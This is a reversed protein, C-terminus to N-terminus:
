QTKTPVSVMRHSHAWQRLQERAKEPLAFKAGGPSVAAASLCQEGDEDCQTPTALFAHVNGTVTDLALGVIQGESNIGFGHILFLPSDAPILSNLDKMVGHQWLFARQNGSGDISVGTVQGRDSIAVAASVADGPLTGLDCMEGRRWIFAHQYTDGPIDSAGVVESFDNIAFAANNTKGGLTGLDVERHNRWLLAHQPELPLGYRPDYAACVGSAGVVEGKNNIWFAAGEPDSKYLPLTRIEGKAWIVPRFQLVQPVPCDPDSSSNETYGAIQGERNVESAQGNNGGLTELPTMMGDKWLFALCILNTGFGCFNEVHPDAAPIEASGVIETAENLGAFTQSNPGGLTGLDLMAGDKFLFAHEVTDGPLTSFGDIQGKENIGYALSFTGGLTGLDTVTYRVAHKVSSEQTAPNQQGAIRIPLALAVFLSLTSLSKMTRPKV